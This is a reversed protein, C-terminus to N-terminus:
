WDRCVVGAIFWDFNLTIASACKGAFTSNVVDVDGNDSIRLKYGYTNCAAYVYLINILEYNPKGSNM